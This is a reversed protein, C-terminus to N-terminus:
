IRLEIVDGDWLKHDRGVMQGQFSGSGWIRASKLQEYFDQHVKAAFDEVTSGKKLVFPATKDAEEGPPQSYVRILDLRKFITHKLTELNYGTVASVPIFHWDQGLLACLIDFDEAFEPGDYKNVIVLLPVSFGRHEAEIDIGEVLPQVKNEALINITEELQDFPDAQLDILLLLLECRRILDMLAPEVYGPQLPPTDILQIPAYNVFMMGPTPTWTSCPFDAIEPSANTLATVLASKGVNPAGIVAAQAAGEKEIQYVSVHRSVGKKTQAAAKLKSLRKRLDARLKDTGKHKPVTSILEELRTIKEQPTSAAKYREEADAYEPPLNTPM